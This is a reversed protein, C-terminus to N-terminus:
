KGVARDFTGLVTPLSRGSVQPETLTGTVEVGVLENRALGVLDGVLPIADWGRNSTDFTMLIRGTEYNLTGRGSLKMEGTGALADARAEFKEFRLLPGGIDFQVEAVNFPQAVPLALNTVQLLGLVLPVKFLKDGRVIVRGRGERSAPDGVVGRLDLGATLEGDGIEDEGLLKQVDVGVVDVQVRFASASEGDVEAADFTLSGGGDMVGGAVGSSLETFSLVNGGAPLALKMSLNGAERGSVRYSTATADGSLEYLRGFEYTGALNIAGEFDTIAVGLDFAAGTARIKGKYGVDPSPAEEGEASPLNTAIRLVDFDGSVTGSAGLGELTETLGQPLATLLDADIPVNEFRPRLTWVGAPRDPDALDGEGSVLLDAFVGAEADIAHRATVDEIRVYGPQVTILGTVDRMAYPFGLPTAQIGRPRLEVKYDIADAESEVEGGALLATPLSLSVTADTAGRPRLWAWSDRAAEPLRQYLDGDLPFNSAVLTLKTRGGADTGVTGSAALTGDGRTGVVDDLMVEGPRLEVKGRLGALSLTGGEPWFTGDRVDLSLDYDPPAGETPGNRIRGRVLATGGAGLSKISDVVAEPLAGLLANDSPVNEALVGVDYRLRPGLDNDADAEDDQGWQIRGTVDARLTQGDPLLRTVNARHIVAYDRRVTVKASGREVPYPFFSAAGSVRRLDLSVQFDWRKNAGAPRIIRAKFDGAFSVAPLAVGAGGPKGHEDPDFQDIVNRVQPPLAAILAPEHEVNRGAVNVDFGAVSTLPAVSGNVTLLADANPSGPAGRGVLNELILRDERTDRDHRLRIMGRAGYVRYPLRELAFSGDLVSVDGTVTPRGNAGRDFQLDLRCTGSPTFRRYIERVPRPLSSLYPLVSPLRIPEGADAITFAVTADRGYGGINGNLKLRNGELSGILDDVFLGTDTFTFGGSVDQLHIPVPTWAVALQRAQDRVSTPLSANDAVRAAYHVAMERMALEEPPLWNEPLGRIAGDSLEVRVRAVSRRSRPRSPDFTYTIEPAEIRGRIQHREALEAAQRPLLDRLAAFDLDLLRAAVQVAGGDEGGGLKLTGEARPGLEDALGAPVNEGEVVYRQTQLDFAYRSGEEERAPSLPRFLAQIAVGGQEELVDGSRRAFDIQANRLVLEPLLEPPRFPRGGPTEKPRLLGIQQFNFSGDDANEIVRVHPDTAVIRGASLDGALLSFPDYDITVSRATFLPPEGEPVDDDARISVGELRLGDFLGLTARDVVVEAGLLRSLYTQSLSKVRDDDTALLYASLVAICLVLLSQRLLRRGRSHRPRIPCDRRWTREFLRQRRLNTTPLPM